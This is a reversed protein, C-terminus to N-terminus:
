QQLKKITVQWSEQTTNRPCQTIMHPKGEMSPRFEDFAEKTVQTWDDIPHDEAMNYATFLKFTKMMGKHGTSLPKETRDDDVYSLDDQDSQSLPNLVVTVVHEFMTKGHPSSNTGQVTIPM